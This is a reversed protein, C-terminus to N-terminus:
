KRPHDAGRAVHVAHPLIDALVALGDQVGGRSGPLAVVISRGLQGAVSRSLSSMPTSAQGAARLAEGIGPILRGCVSSVAEPTVDRPSLGTGGTLVVVDARRALRVIAAAIKEKEDPVVVPKGTSFGVAKLGARLQPGSLDKATGAFCRDSVTIVAATGSRLPKIRPNTKEPFLPHRWVGSKGGEKIDLRIDLITLAPDVQKVLDYVALLAGSVGCLAEMEVGTKASAKAECFATVGPITEDLEFSLAVSDLPLPHCLPILEATRKAALLGAVEGAKLADGKPLQGAKLLRFATQGMRLSGRAVARRSTAAKGGVDVMKLNQRGM